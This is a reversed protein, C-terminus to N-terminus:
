RVREASDSAQLGPIHDDLAQKGIGVVRARLVKRASGSAAPGPQAPRIRTGRGAEPMRRSGAERVAQTMLAERRQTNCVTLTM